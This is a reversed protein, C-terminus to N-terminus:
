FSEKDVAKGVNKRVFEDTSELALLKRILNDSM